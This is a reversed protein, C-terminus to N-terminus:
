AVDAVDASDLTIEVLRTVILDEIRVGLIQALVVLNDITPMNKGAFWNYITQVYPFDMIVRLERVSIGKQKLTTKIKAGTAALDLVPKLYTTRM